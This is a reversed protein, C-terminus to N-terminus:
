CQAPRKVSLRAGHLIYDKKLVKPVLFFPITTNVKSSSESLSVRVVGYVPMM